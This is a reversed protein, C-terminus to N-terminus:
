GVYSFAYGREQARNVAVVGAAAPHANAILSALLEAQIDKAKGGTKRALMGAIAETAMSCVAFHVGMGALDALTVDRDPGAPRADRVNYPNVKPPPAATAAKSRDDLASIMETLAAGYKAWVADGYAYPTAFHRLVIIVGLDSATLGYGSKNAIFFNDAFDMAQRAGKASLADFVMRHRGGLEMWADKDEMAPKWPGAAPPEARAGSAALGAGLSAVGLVSMLARRALPPPTEPM